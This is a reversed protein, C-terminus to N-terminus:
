AIRVATEVTIGRETLSLPIIRTRFSKRMKKINLSGEFGRTSEKLAFEIVGDCLLKLTNIIHEEHVGEYGIFFHVGGHIHAATTLYSVINFIDKPSYELLLYTMSDLVTWHNGQARPLFDRKLTNLNAEVSVSEQNPPTIPVLLDKM